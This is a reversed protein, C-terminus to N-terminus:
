LDRNTLSNGSCKLKSINRGGKHSLLPSLTVKLLESVTFAPYFSYGQCKATNLLIENSVNIGFKTDRVWELRWNQSGPNRAVGGAYCRSLQVQQKLDNLEEMVSTGIM